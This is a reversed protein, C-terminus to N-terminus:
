NCALTHILNTPPPPLTTHCMGRRVVKHANPCHNGARARTSHYTPPAELTDQARGGREVHQLTYFRHKLLLTLKRFCEVAETRSM